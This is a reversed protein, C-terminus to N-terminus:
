QPTPAQWSSHLQWRGSPEPAPQGSRWAFHAALEMPESAPRDPRESSGKPPAAWPGLASGQHNQTQPRSCRHTRLWGPQCEPRGSCWAFHAVQDSCNSATPGPRQKSAPHAPESRAMVDRQVFADRALGGNVAIPPSRVNLLNMVFHNELPVVELRNRLKESITPTSSRHQTSRQLRCPSPNKGFLSRATHVAM